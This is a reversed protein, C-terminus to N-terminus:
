CGGRWCWLLDFMVVAVVGVAALMVDSMVMLKRTRVSPRKKEVAAEAGVEVVVVIVVAERGVVVMGVVVLVVVVVAIVDYAV